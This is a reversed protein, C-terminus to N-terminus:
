LAAEWDTQGCNPQWLTRELREVLQPLTWETILSHSTDYDEADELTDVTVFTLYELEDRMLSLMRHLDDVEAEVGRYGGPSLSPPNTEQASGQEFPM